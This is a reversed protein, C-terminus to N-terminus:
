KKCGIELFDVEKLLYHDNGLTLAKGQNFEIDSLVNEIRILAKIEDNKTHSYIYAVIRKYVIDGGHFGDICECDDTTLISLNHFDYNEVGLTKIYNRLLDIYSYNKYIMHTHVTNSVPPIILILKSGKKTTLDIIEHLLKLRNHSLQSGFQFRKNGDNVRQLTDKFNKDETSEIGFLTKSYLYSGDKRFGDSTKIASFGLNDYSTYPNNIQGIKLMNFFTNSSVKGNQLYEYTTTIKNKDLTMGDNLHYKFEKVQPFAENFWWFDLGLIIYKPTHFSYMENLFKIGETLHNMAGGANVFSENFSDERLQMVRSSGLAVINPKIQKVLEMKYGFTNRNLATGYISNNEIQRKVISQFSNNEYNSSLYLYVVGYLSMFIILPICWLIVWKKSSM